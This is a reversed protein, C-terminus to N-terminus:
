FFNIDQELLYKLGLNKIYRAKYAVLNGDKDLLLSDDDNGPFIFRNTQIKRLKIATNLDLRDKIEKPHYFKIVRSEEQYVRAEDGIGLLKTKGRITDLFSYKIIKGSLTYYKKM